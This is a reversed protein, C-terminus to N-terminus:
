SAPYTLGNISVVGHCRLQQDVMHTALEEMTPMKTNIHSPLVRETLDYTKQFGARDCVMLDGQKYLQDLAKKAPKWDWWGASKSTNTEIDRSRLPGDARIRALLERM